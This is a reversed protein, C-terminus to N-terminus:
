IYYITISELFSTLPIASYPIQAFTTGTTIKGSGLCSGTPTLIGHVSLLLETIYHTSASYPTAPPSKLYDGIFHGIVWILFYILGQKIILKMNLAIGFVKLANKLYIVGLRLQM